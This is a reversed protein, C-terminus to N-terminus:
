AALTLLGSLHCGQHPLERTALSVLTLKHVETDKSTVDFRYKVHV